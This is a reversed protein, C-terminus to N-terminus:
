KIWLCKRAFKEWPTGYDKKQEDEPNKEEESLFPLRGKFIKGGSFSAFYELNPLMALVQPAVLEAEEEMLREGSNASATLPDDATISTSQTHMVYNVKTKMCNDSFYKMSEASKLRLCIMNNFNGLASETKDRSELRTTFDAITQSACYIQFKAGRGKNLLAILPDNAIEACEDVFINLPIKDRNNNYRDAAVQALDSLLIAGVAKGVTANGLTNLGFYVVKKSRTLDRLNHYTVAVDEGPNLMEGIEGATMSTLVAVLNSLMKSLHEPNHEFYSIVAGIDRIVKAKDELLFHRYYAAWYQAKQFDSVAIKRQESKSVNKYYFGALITKGTIGEPFDPTSLVIRLNNEYDSKGGAYLQVSKSVLNALNGGQLYKFLAEMTPKENTMLMGEIITSSFSAAFQVFVDDGTGMLCKIRSALETSEQFNAFPDIRISKKPSKLQFSLFAEPRGMQVCARKANSELEEDGKPDFILVSEGRMVAQSILLDFLRTKGAGTTGLILTHGNAHSIPQYLDTEEGLGHLATFGMKVSEGSRDSFGDSSDGLPQLDIHELNGAMIETLKQVQEKQWLFGYGMWITKVPKETGDDGFVKKKLADFTTFAFDMGQLKLQKLHNSVAQRRRYICMASCTGGVAIWAPFYVFSNVLYFAAAGFGSALAGAQWWWAQTLEINDRYTREYQTPNIKM